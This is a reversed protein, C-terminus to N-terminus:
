SRLLATLWGISARLNTQLEELSQHGALWGQLHMQYLAFLTQAATDTDADPCLHGGQQAASLQASIHKLFTQIQAADTHREEDSSPNLAQRIFERTLDPHGAYFEIFANFQEYLADELPLTSAPTLSVREGIAQRFLARLLASKDGVHAMVTGLGVDAQEAIQRITTAEYGQTSFLQWAAAHIREQKATKNRERRAPPVTM